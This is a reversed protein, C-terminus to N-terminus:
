SAVDWRRSVLLELRYTGTQPVQITYQLWEGTQFNNVVYAGNPYRIIDVDVDTRYQGGQNGPTLDHYAVGEGGHDFDEAEIQGPVPDPTEAVLAANPMLQPAAVDVYDHDAGIRWVHNAAS